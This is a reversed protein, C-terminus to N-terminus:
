RQEPLPPAAAVQTTESAGYNRMRSVLQHREQPTVATGARDPQRDRHWILNRGQAKAELLYRFSATIHLTRDELTLAVESLARRLREALKLARPLSTGPLILAFEEGGYRCPIDLRRINDKLLRSIRRLVADGFQHGHTDNVQKFHDLDLM